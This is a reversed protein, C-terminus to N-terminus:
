CIKGNYIEKSIVLNINFKEQLREGFVEHCFCDPQLNLLVWQLGGGLFECPPIEVIKLNEEFSIGIKEYRRM